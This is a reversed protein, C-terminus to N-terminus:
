REGGFRAYGHILEALHDLDRAIVALLMTYEDVTGGAFQPLNGVTHFTEAEARSIGRAIRDHIQQRLAVLEAKWRAYSVQDHPALGKLASERSRLSAIEDLHAQMATSRSSADRQQRVRVFAHFQVAILTLLPVAALSWLPLALGVGVSLGMGAGAVVAGYIWARWAAGVLQCYERAADVYLRARGWVQSFTGVSAEIM